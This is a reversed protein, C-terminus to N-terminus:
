SRSAHHSRRDALRVKPCGCVQNLIDEETWKDNQAFYKEEVMFTLLDKVEREDSDDGKARRAGVEEIRQKIIAKFQSRVVANARKFRKNAPIPLWRIPVIGNLATLIQGVTDPEFVEHYCDHFSTSSSSELNKLEVNLAFVGMIDLM